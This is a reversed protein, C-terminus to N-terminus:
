EHYDGLRCYCEYLLFLRQLRLNKEVDWSLPQLSLYAEIKDCWESIEVRSLDCFLCYKMLERELPLVLLSNDPTWDRERLFITKLQSYTYEMSEDFLVQRSVQDKEKLFCSEVAVKLNLYGYDYCVEIVPPFILEKKVLDFLQGSEVGLEKGWKLLIVSAVDNGVRVVSQTTCNLRKGIQNLAENILKMGNNYVHIGLRHYVEDTLSLPM